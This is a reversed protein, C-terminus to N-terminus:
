VAAVGINGSFFFFFDGDSANGVDTQFFSHWVSNAPIKFDYQLTYENVKAGGGNAPIQHQMKYYSGPGILVAGNGTAPGTAASHSGVLTLDVGYSGEAKSLNAPNDFQWWGSRQPIAAQVQNLMLFLALIIIFHIRM